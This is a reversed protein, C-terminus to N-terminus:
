VKMVMLGNNIINGADIKTQKMENEKKKQKSSALKDNSILRTFQPFQTLHLLLFLSGFLYEVGAKLWM